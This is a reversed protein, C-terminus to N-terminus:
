LVHLTPCILRISDSDPLVVCPVTRVLPSGRRLYPLHPARGGYAVHPDCTLVSAAAAAAADPLACRGGEWGRALWGALREM